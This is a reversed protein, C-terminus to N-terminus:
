YNILHIHDNTIRLVPDKGNIVDMFAELFGIIHSSNKEHLSFASILRSRDAMTTPPRNFALRYIQSRKLSHRQSVREQAM